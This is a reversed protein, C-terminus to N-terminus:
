GRTIKVYDMDGVFYDCSVRVGDCKSKGAITMPLKNDIRGIAITRVKRTGDVVVAVQTAPQGLQDPVAGQEGGGLQGGRCEDGGRQCGRVGM